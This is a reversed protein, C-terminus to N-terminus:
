NRAKHLAWNRNLSDCEVRWVWTPILPAGARAVQYETLLRQADRGDPIGDSLVRRAEADIQEARQSFSRYGSLNKYLGVSILFMLTTAVSQAGANGASTGALNTACFYLLWISLALSGGFLYGLVNGCVRALHQSYWASESLNELVRVPGFPQNSDYTVGKTLLADLEPRLGKPFEVNLSALRPGSPPKGFGDSHEHERKLKEALGKYKAAKTAIFVGALALPLAVLPYKLTIKPIYIAVVGSAFLFVQLYIALGAWLKTKAYVKNLLRKLAETRPDPQTQNPSSTASM